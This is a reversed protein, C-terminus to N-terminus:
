CQDSHVLRGLKVLFRAICDTKDQAKVSCVTVSLVQKHVQGEQVRIKM